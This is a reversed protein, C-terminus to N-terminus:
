DRYAANCYVSLEEILADIDIKKYIKNETIYALIVPNGIATHNGIEAAKTFGYDLLIRVLNQAAKNEDLNSVPYHQNWVAAMIRNM